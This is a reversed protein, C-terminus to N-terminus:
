KRLYTKKYENEYKKNTQFENDWNNESKEM